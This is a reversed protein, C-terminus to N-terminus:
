KPVISPGPEQTPCSGPDSIANAVIQADQVNVQGDGNLDYDPNTSGMLIAQRVIDADVANIVDDNNVDCRNRSQAATFPSGRVGVRGSRARGGNVNVVYSVTGTGNGSAGSSL